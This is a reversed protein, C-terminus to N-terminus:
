IPSFKVTFRGNDATVLPDTAVFPLRVVKRYHVKGKNGVIEAKKGNIRINLDYLGIGPMEFEVIKPEKKASKSKQIKANQVDKKQPEDNELFPTQASDEYAIQPSHSPLAWRGFTQKLGREIRKVWAHIKNEEVDGKVTITPQKMGTKWHYNMAYNEWPSSVAYHHIFEGKVPTGVEGHDADEEYYPDDEIPWSSRFDSIMHDLVGWTNFADLADLLEFEEMEEYDDHDM